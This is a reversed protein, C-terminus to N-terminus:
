APSTPRVRRDAIFQEFEEKDKATRLRSLFDQFEKQEQDLRRLTETRYEEFPSLGQDPFQAAVHPGTRAVDIDTRASTPRFHGQMGRMMFFMGGLCLLMMIPAFPFWMMPWDSWM